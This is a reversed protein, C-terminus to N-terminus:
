VQAVGNKSQDARCGGEQRNEQNSNNFRMADIKAALKAIKHRFGVRSSSGGRKNGSGGGNTKM